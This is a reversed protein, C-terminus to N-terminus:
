LDLCQDPMHLPQLLGVCLTLDNAEHLPLVQLALDAGGECFKLHLVEGQAAADPGPARRQPAELALCVAGPHQQKRQLLGGAARVESGAIVHDDDVGHLGRRALLRHRELHLRHAPHPPRPLLALDMDPAEHGHAGDLLPDRLLVPPVQPLALVCSTALQHGIRNAQSILRVHIGQLCSLHPGRSNLLLLLLLDLTGNCQGKSAKCVKGRLRTLSRGRLM